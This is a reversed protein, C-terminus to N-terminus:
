LMDVCQSFRAKRGHRGLEVSRRCAGAAAIQSIQAGTYGRLTGVHVVDHGAKAPTPVRDGIGYLFVENKAVNDHHLM